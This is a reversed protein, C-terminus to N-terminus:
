VCALFFGMSTNVAKSVPTSKAGRFLTMMTSSGGTLFAPIKTSLESPNSSLSLFSADIIYISLIWYNITCIM